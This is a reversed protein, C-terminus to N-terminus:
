ALSSLQQGALISAVELLLMKESQRSPILGKQRSEVTILADLIKECERLTYRRLAKEYPKAQFAYRLGLKKQIAEAKPPTQSLHLIAINQFFSRLYSLVYVIPYSSIDDAYASLIKLAEEKKGEALAETLRYPPYQPHLGLVEIIEAANLSSKNQSLRYLQLTQLTSELLRLDSSLSEVMLSAAEPPIGQREVWVELEQPKLPAFSEFRVAQSKPLMNPPETWGGEIILRVHEAPRQLYAVIAKLTKEALEEADTIVAVKVPSLFPPEYLQPITQETFAKGKWTILAFDPSYGALLEEVLAKRRQSRRYEDAGYLIWIM